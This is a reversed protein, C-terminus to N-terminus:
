SQIIEVFPDFNYKRPSEEIRWNVTNSFSQFQSAGLNKRFAGFLALFFKRLFAGLKQSNKPWFRGYELIKVSNKKGFFYFM